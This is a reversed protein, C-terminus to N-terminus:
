RSSALGEQLSCLAYICVCVCVRGLVPGLDGLAVEFHPSWPPSPLFSSVM